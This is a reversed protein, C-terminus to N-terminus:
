SLPVIQFVPAFLSIKGSDASGIACPLPQKHGKSRFLALFDACFQQIEDEMLSNRLIEEFYRPEPDKLRDYDVLARPTTLGKQQFSGFCICM